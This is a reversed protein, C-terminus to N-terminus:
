SQRSRGGPSGFLYPYHVGPDAPPRQDPPPPIARWAAPLRCGTSYAYVLVTGPSNILEVTAGDDRIQSFTGPVPATNPPSNPRFKAAAFIPTIADTIQKWQHDTPAPRAYIKEIAYTDGINHTFPDVCGRDPKPTSPGIVTQPSYKAIVARIQADLVALQQQAVELDPRDNITKQLRDLEANDPAAAPNFTSPKVCAPLAVSVMVAILL